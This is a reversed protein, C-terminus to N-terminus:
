CTADAQAGAGLVDSGAGLHTGKGLHEAHQRGIFRSQHDVGSGVVHIHLALHGHIARAKRRRTAPTVPRQAEVSTRGGTEKPGSLGETAVRLHIADQEELGSM